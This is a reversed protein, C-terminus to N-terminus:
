DRLQICLHQLKIFKDMFKLIQSVNNKTRKGVLSIGNRKMVQKMSATDANCKTHTQGVPMIFANSKASIRAESMNLNAENLPIIPESRQVKQYQGLKRLIL